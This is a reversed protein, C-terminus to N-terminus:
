LNALDINPHFLKIKRPLWSLDETLARNDRREVSQLLDGPGPLGRAVLDRLEADGYDIADGEPEQPDRVKVIAVRYRNKEKSVEIIKDLYNEERLLPLLQGGLSGAGARRDFTVVAFDADDLIYALLFCTVTARHKGLCLACIPGNCLLTLFAGASDSVKFHVNATVVQNTVPRLLVSEGDAIWRRRVSAAGPTTKSNQAVLDAAHEVTFSVPPAGEALKKSENTAMPAANAAAPAVAIAPKAERGALKDGVTKGKKRM